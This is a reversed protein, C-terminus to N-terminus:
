WTLIGLGQSNGSLNPAACDFTIYQAVEAAFHRFRVSVCRVNACASGTPCHVTKLM